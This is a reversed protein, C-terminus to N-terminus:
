EFLNHINICEQRINGFFRSDWSNRGSLDSYDLKGVYGKIKFNNTDLLQVDTPILIM